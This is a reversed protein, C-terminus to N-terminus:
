ADFPNNSREFWAKYTETPTRSDFRAVPPGKGGCRGRLLAPTM